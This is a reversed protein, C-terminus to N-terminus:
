VVTSNLNLCVNKDLKSSHAFSSDIPSGMIDYLTMKELPTPMNSRMKRLPKKM